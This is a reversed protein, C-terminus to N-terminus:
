KRLVEFGCVKKLWGNRRLTKLAEETKVEELEQFDVAPCDKVIEGKIEDFTLWNRSSGYYHMDKGYGSTSYNQVLIVENEKDVALVESYWPYEEFDEYKIFDGKKINM